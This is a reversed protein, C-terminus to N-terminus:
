ENKAELNEIIRSAKEDVTRVSELLQKIMQYTKKSLAQNDRYEMLARRIVDSQNSQGKLWEYLDPYEDLRSGVFLKQSMNYSNYM